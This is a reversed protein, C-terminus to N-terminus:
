AADTLDEASRLNGDADFADPRLEYRIKLFATEPISGHKPWMYIAHRSAYGLKDALVIASGFLDIAQQRSIM